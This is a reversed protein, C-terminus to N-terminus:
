GRGTLAALEAASMASPLTFGPEAEAAGADGGMAQALLGLAVVIEAARGADLRERAAGLFVLLWDGEAVPGVLRTDVRQVAGAADQVTAQGEAVEALVVMPVGICM